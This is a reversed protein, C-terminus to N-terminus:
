KGLGWYKAIASVNVGTELSRLDHANPVGNTDYAENFSGWGDATPGNVRAQYVEHTRPDGVAILDWLLYGLDHGDFGSDQGPVLQLFGTKANYYHAIADVDKVQEARDYPTGDFVPMLTFNVIRRQPWSGDPKRFFDHFGAPIEPVDTRWFDRDMAALLKTLEAHLDITTGTKACAYKSPDEGLRKLYDIYFELSAACLAISSMSWQSHDNHYGTGDANVAWCVETEDGNFKMHQGNAIETKLQIDTCFRLTRDISKLFALDGTGKLYERACILVYAPEEVDLTYPDSAPDEIGPPLPSGCPWSDNLHTVVALDKDMWALWKKSEVFHGTAALGRLGLAADRVYGELYYTSHAIIGGDSCQNARLVTLAGEVLRRTRVDGIKSLQYDAPVSNFWHQWERISKGLEKVPDIGAITALYQPDSRHELTVYHCLSLNSSGRPEIRARSTELTAADNTRSATTLPDSFAIVAIKDVYNLQGNPEKDNPGGQIALARPVQRADQVLWRKLSAPAVIRAHLRVQHAASKSNNDIMVLREIWPADPRTYDILRVTLDGFTRVGYYIGTKEARHMALLLPSEVGDIEIALTESHLACSTTYGPGYLMTWEGDAEGVALATGSGVPYRHRANLYPVQSPLLVDGIRKPPPPAGLFEFADFDQYGPTKVVIKLTHPGPALGTKAYLEQQRLLGPGSTDVTADLNGDLYVDARQHDVNRNGIWKVGPGSFAFSCSDGVTKTYHLDGGFYGPDGSQTFSGSYTVSPDNDNAVQWGDTADGPIDAAALRAFALLVVATVRAAAATARFSRM